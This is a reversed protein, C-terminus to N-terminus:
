GVWRRALWLGFVLASVSLLVSLSIYSFASTYAKRELMQVVDLSFASFTTFGGLLGTMLWLRGAEGLQGSLMFAAALGMLFSGAVNAVGISWYSQQNFGETVLLTLGYRAMAGLAGGFAVYLFAPGMNM